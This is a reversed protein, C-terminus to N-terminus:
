SSRREAVWAAVVLLGAWVGFLYLFVMPIGALEGNPLGLLPYTLLPIGCLGIAALRQRTPSGRKM